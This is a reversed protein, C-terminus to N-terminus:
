VRNRELWERLAETIIDQRAMRLRYEADRLGEAVPEPIKAYIAVRTDRKPPRVPRADPEDIAAIRVSSLNPLPEKM